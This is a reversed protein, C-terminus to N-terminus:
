YKCKNELELYNSMPVYSKEIEQIIEETMERITPFYRKNDKVVGLRGRVLIYGIKEKM